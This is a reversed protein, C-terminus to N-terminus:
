GGPGGGPDGGPVDVGGPEEAPESSVVEGELVEDTPPLPAAELPPVQAGVGEVERYFKARLERIRQEESWTSRNTPSPIAQLQHQYPLVKSLLHRLMVDDAMARAVVHGWFSVGHDQEYKEIAGILRQFQRECIFSRDAIFDSLDRPTPEPSARLEENIGM